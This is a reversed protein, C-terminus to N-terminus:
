KQKIRKSSHLKIWDRMEALNKMLYWRGQDFAGYDPGVMASAYRASNAFFLWQEVWRKEIAEDFLNKPDALGLKWARAILKTAELTLLNTTKITHEYRAFQGQVWSTSHCALCIKSMTQRRKAMEQAGILFKKVPTGDLNTPLPLGAKNKIISTDPNRPHPHAYILGFLRWALRDNMRHTRKVVVEGEAGVILSVHCVACTPATFDKGVTWPVATFNFQKKMASFVAGHKSVQYVKYAPVDPGKHCEACTYPKRAMEISFRHRTHCASCAGRSGDPNIRGVGRNPWGTLVPFKMKGESTDRTALGKVEVRTGHCYFCTEANTMADSKELFGKPGFLGNVSDVLQMYVPNKALNDWAWAMINKNFQEAEVPHCQACNKPTVVIHVMRDNHKFRDKHNKGGSHCEACGVATKALHPPVTKASVKRALPKKKIAQAPTTKAHASMKWAAVIGPTVNTHCDICNQSVQSIPAASTTPAVLLIIGLFLFTIKRYM